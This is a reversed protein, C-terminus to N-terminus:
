RRVQERRVRLRIPEAGDRRLDVVVDQLLPGSLRSRAQEITAIPKQDIRELRDGPEIGAYEAEGGSPVDLVVVGGDREALTVALSGAAQTRPAVYDQSPIMIEVRSTTRGRQIVVGDLRTRGLEPSYVELTVEGEPLSGLVFRGEANTVALRDPLRGVPLFTPVADKGVRAGAVPDGVEDIVIGEVTGAPPLDITELTIAHRADGQVRTVIEVPAYEAHRALIRIRGEAMDPLEFNGDADTDAHRAGSATFITLYAGWLRERGGNGTVRGRVTRAEPMTLRHTAEAPDLIAVLPASGPRELVVRLPIGRASSVEVKGGDDSFLTRVLSTTPDLSSVRAEVGALPFDRHDLVLLEVPDRAKPLVIEVENRRKPAVTVDVRAVVESPSEPRTVSIVIEEPAAAVAFTGDEGTYTVMFYTGSQAAIEIRAGAVPTRDEEFVRGELRGGERLVITVKAEGSPPLVIVDSMEEVYGPHRVLVQVRGPTVPAARFGGDSRTIWAEGSTDAVGAAIDGRPIDPVPGPMVGLEGRPILAVPGGLSFDFLADRFGSRDSVERIPMGDTDTGIVEISAGEVGFGREDVVRGEIAAGRALPIEIADEGEDLFAGRPMFGQARAQLATGESSVPGLRAEGNKDTKATIPFSSIGDETAIVSAGEIGPADGYAEGPGDTVRVTVFRGAGLVLERAIIAGRGLSVNMDTVSVREDKRAKLDYLGARLGVITAHGEDDTRTTRAPWLTPGTVLVEADAVPEGDAEVVQVEFGGLRALRVRVKEGDAVIGSRVVGDFGDASVSVSFPGKGLRSFLTKGEADTKGASPLPDVRSSVVVDAGPIPADQEDVVEVALASAPVFGLTVRRPEPGLVLRTSARARGEAYGLVWAEGRPLADFDITGVGDREAEKALFAQGNSIWFVRVVVRGLADDSSAKVDVTLRADGADAVPTSPGADLAQRATDRLGAAFALCVLLALVDM